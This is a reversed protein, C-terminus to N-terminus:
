EARRRRTSWDAGNSWDGSQSSTWFVTTGAPVVGVLLSSPTYGSELINGSDLTSYNKYAFDGSSSTFTMLPFVSALAPAYDNLLVVNLTGGFIATGSVAVQPYDTGANPGGISVNFTGHLGQTYSGDIKVTGTPDFQGGNDIDVNGILTGTGSLTGGFININALPIAVSDLVGGALTTGGATQHYEFGSASREITAPPM